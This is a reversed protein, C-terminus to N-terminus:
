NLAELFESGTEGGVPVLPPPGQFTAPNKMATALEPDTAYARLILYFPGEPAPLWNSAKDAGPSAAQLYMTFSGDPNKKLDSM